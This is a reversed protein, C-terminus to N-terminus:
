PQIVILATRNRFLFASDHREGSSSAPAGERNVGAVEGEFRKFPTELVIRKGKLFCNERYIPLFYEWGNEIFAPLSAAFRDFVAKMIEILDRERGTEAVISSAIGSLDQPFERNNVNIGIGVLHYHQFSLHETHIGCIKKDNLMIDNPWKIRTDADCLVQKLAQLVCVGTFLTFNSAAELNLLGMTMWIGGPPSFWANGKRGKGSSQEDAYVLFNGTIMRNRVMSEAKSTTSGIRKLHYIEDFFPHEFDSM